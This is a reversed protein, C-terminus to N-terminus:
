PSLDAPVLEVKVYSESKAFRSSKLTESCESSYDDNDFKTESLVSPSPDFVIPVLSSLDVKLDLGRLTM